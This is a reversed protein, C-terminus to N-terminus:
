AKADANEEWRIEWVVEYPVLRRTELDLVYARYAYGERAELCLHDEVLNKAAALDAAFHHEYGDRANDYRTEQVVLYRDPVDGSDAVAALDALVDVALDNDLAGRHAANRVAEVADYTKPM